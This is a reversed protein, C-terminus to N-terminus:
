QESVIQSYFLQLNSPLKTRDYVSYRHIVIAKLADKTAEDKASLYQIQINALDRIMSENYQQSQQFVKNDIATNWPATISKLGLSYFSLVAVLLLISLLALLGAFIDRM